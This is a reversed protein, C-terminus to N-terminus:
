DMLVIAQGYRAELARRARHARSRSTFWASRREQGDKLYVVAFRFGPKDKSMDAVMDTQM